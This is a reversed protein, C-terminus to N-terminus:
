LSSRKHKEPSEQDDMDPYETLDLTLVRSFMFDDHEPCVGILADAKSYFEEKLSIVIMQIKEHAQERIFSSVWVSYNGIKNFSQIANGQGIDLM